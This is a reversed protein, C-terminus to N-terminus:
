NLMNGVWKCVCLSRVVTYCSPSIGARSHMLMGGAALGVGADKRGTGADKGRDGADKGGVGADKGEENRSRVLGGLHASSCRESFCRPKSLFGWPISQLTPLQRDGTMDVHRSEAQLGNRELAM